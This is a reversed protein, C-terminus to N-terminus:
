FGIGFAVGYVTYVTSEIIDASITPTISYQNFHFDYGAGFRVFFHSNSHSINEEEATAADEALITSMPKLSHTQTDGTETTLHDTTHSGSSTIYGPAFFVKLEKWPHIFLPMAAIYETHEAMVMEGIFGIGVNPTTHLFRYEYDIGATFNFEFPISTDSTGGLFIGAHHPHTGEHGHEEAAEAFSFSCIILAIILFFHKM